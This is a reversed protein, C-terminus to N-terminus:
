VADLLERTYPHRPATFVQEVPGDEVLRGARMIAVRDCLTGIVSLDHSIFLVAMGEMERLRRLLELIEAQVTVDLNTREAIASATLPELRFPAILTVSSGQSSKRRLLHRLDAPETVVATYASVGGEIRPTLGDSQRSLWHHRTPWVAPVPSWRPRPWRALHRQASRRRGAMQTEPASRISDTTLRTSGSWSM